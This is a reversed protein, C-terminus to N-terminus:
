DVFYPNVAAHHCWVYTDNDLEGGCWEGGVSPSLTGNKRMHRILELMALSHNHWASIIDDYTCVIRSGNGTAIIRSGRHNTPGVYRTKIAFM